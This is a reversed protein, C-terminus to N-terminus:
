GNEEGPEEIEDIEVAAISVVGFGETRRHGIGLAAAAALTRLEQDAGEPPRHLLYSSGARIALEDSKPLRHASNWGAVIESAAYAGDFRERDLGLDRPVLTGRFGLAEDRVIAPTLLDIRMAKGAPWEDPVPHADPFLGVGGDTGTHPGLHCHLHGMVGKRRGVRLEFLDDPRLGLGELLVALDEPDDARLYGRLSRGEPIVEYAFLGGRSVTQSDSDIRNHSSVVLARGEDEPVGSLGPGAPVLLGQCHRCRRAEPRELLDVVGHGDPPEGPRLKCTHRSLPLPHGARRGAAPYLYGFRVRGSLFSRRFEASGRDGRWRAALAGRLTSGPVFPLGAVLNGAEPRRGLAVEGLVRADIALVTPLAPGTAGTIPARPEPAPDPGTTPRAAESSEGALSEVAAEWSEFFPQLRASEIRIRCTGLGRRRGGGAERIFRLAAVLLAVDRPSLDSGSPEASLTAALELGPQAEELTFLHEDEARGSVEEIATRSRPRTLLAPVRVAAEALRERDHPEWLRRGDHSLILRGPGFDVAAPRHNSGTLVCVPCPPGKRTVGCLKGLTGNDRRRATGHCVPEGVVEALRRVADAVLGRLTTGPVFPLGHGDRRVLDDLHRGAAEGSGVRWSRDFALVIDLQIAASM